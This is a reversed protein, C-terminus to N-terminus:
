EEKDTELLWRVAEFRTKFDLLWICEISNSIASFTGDENTILFQGLDEKPYIGAENRNLLEWAQKETITKFIVLKSM